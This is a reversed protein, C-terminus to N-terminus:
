GCIRLLQRIKPARLKLIAQKSIQRVRERSLGLHEAIENQSQEECGLGYIHRIVYIDREKLAAHLVRDLERKMSEEVLADDTDAITESHYTDMFSRNNDGGIPLEISIQKADAAMLDMINSIPLNLEEAIEEVYAERGYEEIYQRQLAKMKYLNTIKGQPLRIHHGTKTLADMIAQQIYKVAMSIFKFGRTEDFNEAAKILGINGEAILDALDLGLNQFKKAVSVVFRLNASILKDLAEKDGLRIRRALEAEEDATIRDYKSIESLYCAVSEDTRDTITQTIQIKKM